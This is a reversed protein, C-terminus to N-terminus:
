CSNGLCIVKKATYDSFCGQVWDHRRKWWCQILLSFMITHSLHFSLYSSVYVENQSIFHQPRAKVAIYSFDKVSM